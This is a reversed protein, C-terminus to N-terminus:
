DGQHWKELRGSVEVLRGVNVHNLYDKKVRELKVMQNFSEGGKAACSGDPVSTATGVTPNLLIYREHNKLNEQLFCGVLTVDGKEPPLATADQARGYTPAFAALGCTLLSATVVRVHRLTM